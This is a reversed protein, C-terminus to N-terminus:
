REARVERGVLDDPGTGRHADVNGTSPGVRRGVAEHLTSGDDVEGDFQISLRGQLCEDLGAPFRVDDEAADVEASGFHYLGVFLEGFVVSDARGEGNGFGGEGESAETTM